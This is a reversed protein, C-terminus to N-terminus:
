LNSFQFCLCPFRNVKLSLESDIHAYVLRFDSFFHEQSFGGLIHSIAVLIFQHNRLFHLHVTEPKPVGRSSDIFM